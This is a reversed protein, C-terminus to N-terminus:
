VSMFYSILLCLLCSSLCSRRIKKNAAHVNSVSISRIAILISAIIAVLLLVAAGVAYLHCVSSIKNMINKATALENRNATNAIFFLLLLTCFMSNRVQTGASFLTSYKTAKAQYDNGFMGILYLIVAVGEIALSGICLLLSINATIDPISRFSLM